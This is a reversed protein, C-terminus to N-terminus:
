FRMIIFEVSSRSADGPQGAQGIRSLRGGTGPGRGGAGASAPPSVIAILGADALARAVDPLAEARADEPVAFVHCGLGFLKAELLRAVAPRGEIWVIAPLHGARAHREGPTVSTSVFDPSAGAEREPGAAPPRSEIMGAALTANSILDILIFSGTARNTAYADFFLPRSTEVAASGIENMELQTAPAQELTNVDLRYALGTVVATVTQGAHKLLYPKGTKLPAEHMWVLKAEFRRAIAPPNKPDVLMDGRSIDLEDELCVTASSPTGVADLAGGYWPLSRVRSTRGSPLAMVRDGVRLTGSAVRGAYGRFDLDPRLVYQVPFRLPGAAAGDASPADELADLLTAGGYWPTQASRKVVNDGNLASVPIFAAHAIGLGNLHAQFEGRIREFVDGSFGVLDMKNVAVLVRPIGLLAAICAHRRSQTSVGNRADILVVALDATSAGTAMNRTYQEHGPTDAIIFKRRPTAFYRYAVDITIGQEREARLGDTLLSFDIPGAARNVTSKRVAALQDEYVDKSDYLLRGILTSKGDDVSGATTFRLLSRAM